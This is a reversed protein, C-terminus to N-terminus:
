LRPVIIRLLVLLGSAVFSFLSFSSRTFFNSTRYSFFLQGYVFHFSVTKCCVHCVCKELTCLPKCFLLFNTLERGGGFVCFKNFLFYWSGYVNSLHQFVSVFLAARPLKGGWVPLNKKFIEIELTIIWHPATVKSLLPVVKYLSLWHYNGRHSIDM